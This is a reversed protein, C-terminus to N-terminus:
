DTPSICSESELCSLRDDIDNVRFGIVYILAIIAIFAIDILLTGQRKHSM